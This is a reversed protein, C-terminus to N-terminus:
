VAGTDIIRFDVYEELSTFERNKDRVTTSMMEGWAHKIRETCVKDTSTLQTM